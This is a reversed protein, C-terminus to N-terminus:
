ESETEKAPQGATRGTPAEDRYRDLIKARKVVGEGAQGALVALHILNGESLIVAMEPASLLRFSPIDGQASSQRAHRAQDIKRIGDEAAEIAHFVAIAQGSRVANETKAAGMVIQGAKRALNMMGTLADVMQRDIREALDPPADVKRKLARSFMDKGAAKEVLDRRATVWCGRGPLKGKLDAVVTDDPGAVFRIMDEAPLCQRTVICTRDNV